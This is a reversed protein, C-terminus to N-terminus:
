GAPNSRLRGLVQHVGWALEAEYTMALALRQGERAIAEAEAEHARLHELVASLDSLDSAVPVYNTWPKLRDYYWQRHGHPPTVKLVLGGSLLKYFLGPWSNTHGDIDIHYKYDSFQRPDVFDAHLDLAQLTASEQPTRDVVGTLGVDYLDPRDQRGLQCLRVRPLNLVSGDQRGTTTGRWFARSRRERWRRPHELVHSRLWDYGKWGLFVPDPVLTFMDQHTCFCLGSDVGEDNLNVLVEATSGAGLREATANILPMVGLCREVAAQIVHTGAQTLDAFVLQMPTTFLVAFTLIHTGTAGFAITIPKDFYRSIAVSAEDAHSSAFARQMGTSASSFDM